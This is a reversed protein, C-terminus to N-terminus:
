LPSAHSVSGQDGAADSGLAEKPPAQHANIRSNGRARGPDPGYEYRGDGRSGSVARSRAWTLRQQRGTDFTESTLRYVHVRQDNRQQGGENQEARHHAQGPQLVM